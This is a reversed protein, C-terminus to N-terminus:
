PHQILRILVTISLVTFAGITLACLSDAWGYWYKSANSKDFVPKLAGPDEKTGSIKTIMKMEFQIFINMEEHASEADRRQGLYACYQQFIALLIPIFLLLALFRESQPQRSLAGAIGGASLSVITAMLGFGSTRYRSYSEEMRSHMQM